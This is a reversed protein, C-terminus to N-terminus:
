SISISKQLVEYARGSAISEDALAIGEEITCNKVTAIGLGANALVVARQAPTSENKLVNLLIQAAEAVSTGGALDVESLVDLGIDSPSYYRDGKAQIVRFPGTLSIEDYGSLCHLISFRTHHNDRDQFIYQYKRALDLDYVGVLQYGPQLPNVLPGLMNFFTRMKLGRRLPAVKKMAPHFLPAHLVMMGTTDLLRNLVDAKDTLPYGLHELVNSSGCLSSVGYNGHKCVRCDAGAIVFASTTSINFTNKGDGGTGCVDICDATDIDSKLSLELLASKFGILEEITIPRMRFILLLAAIQPDNYKGETIDVLLQYSENRDLTKRQVLDEIVASM